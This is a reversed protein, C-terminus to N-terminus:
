RTGVARETERRIVEYCECAARELRKRDLITIRGRRYEIMGAKELIGAVVTVSARRVGLMQALFEQTLPFTDSSVRDHSQLLWRACRQEITHLRNCAVGQSLQITWAQLYRRMVGQLAGGPRELEKRFTKADMRACQGPIQCFARFHVRDTGMLLGVGIM